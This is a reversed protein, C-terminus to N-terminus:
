RAEVSESNGYGIDTKLPVYLIRENQKNARFLCYGKSSSFLV